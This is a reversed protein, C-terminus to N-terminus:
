EQRTRRLLYHIRVLDMKGCDIESFRVVSTGPESVHLRMHPVDAYSRDFSSCALRPKYSSYEGTAFRYPIRERHASSRLTKRVRVGEGRRFSALWRNGGVFFLVQALREVSSDGYGSSMSNQAHVCFRYQCYKAKM